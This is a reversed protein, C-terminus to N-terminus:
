LKKVDRDKLSALAAFPSAQGGDGGGEEDGPDDEQRDVPPVGPARPYPDISLSLVQAFVEGVDLVEDELPEPDEAVPDLEVEFGDIERSDDFLEDIEGAVEAAVPELTVVCEQVVSATLTGKLEIWGTDKRRRLVAKASFASLEILGFREALAARAEPSAEFTITRSQQGIRAVPIPEMLPVHDADAM